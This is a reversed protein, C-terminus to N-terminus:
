QYELGNTVFSWYCRLTKTRSVPTAMARPVTSLLHGKMWKAVTKQVHNQQTYKICMSALQCRNFLFFINSSNCDLITRHVTNFGGRTKKTTIKLYGPDILHGVPIPKRRDDDTTTTFRAVLRTHQWNFM